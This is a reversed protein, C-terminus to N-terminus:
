KLVIEVRRQSPDIKSTAEGMGVAKIRDKDIHNSVLWSAVSGAREQSLIENHAATGLGDTWGLILVQGSSGRITPLLNRLEAVAAPLLVASDLSFLYKAPVDAVRRGYPGAIFGILPVQQGPQVNPLQRTAVPASPLASESHGACGACLAAAAAAWVAARLAETIPIRLIKGRTRRNAPCEVPLIVRCGCGRHAQRHVAASAQDSSMWRRGADAPAQM